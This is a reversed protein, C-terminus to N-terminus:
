LSPLTVSPQQHQVLGRKAQINKIAFLKVIRQQVVIEVAWSSITVGSIGLVQRGKGVYSDPHEVASHTLDRAIKSEVRVQIPYEVPMGKEVYRMATQQFSHRQWEPLRPKMVLSHRLHLLNGFPV